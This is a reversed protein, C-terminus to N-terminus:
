GAKTGNSMGDDNLTINGLLEELLRLCEDRVLDVAHPGAIGFAKAIAPSDHSHAARNRADNLRRALSFWDNGLSRAVELWGSPLAEFRDPTAMRSFQMGEEIQEALEPHRVAFYEAEIQNLLEAIDAHNDSLYKLFGYTSHIYPPYDHPPSPKNSLGSQFSITKELLRLLDEFSKPLLTYRLDFDEHSFRHLGYGSLVLDRVAYDLLLWTELVMERQSQSGTVTEVCRRVLDALKKLQEERGWFPGSVTVDSHEEV